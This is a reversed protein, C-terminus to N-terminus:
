SRLWSHVSRATLHNRMMESLMATEQEKGCSLVALVRGDKVYFALFDLKEVSGHYIITDWDDAHGLYNFRKGFHFTWFFPVGCYNDRSGIM